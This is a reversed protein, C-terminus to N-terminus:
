YSLGLGFSGVVKTDEGGNIAATTDGLKQFEVGGHLNWAGFSTTSGLPITALGAASFYGFRNDVGNLEYYDGASLGVKVPFALSVAAGAWGPAVGLEVYKGAKNGADAQGMGPATDMEFAVLAYPKLAGKGLRASDDVGLKFAIEKVTSFMNNPSTYATYTTGLSVGGGFGLGLTAYFDGEYWLKGSPGDTGAAGTHLSNWSGVNLGMSKLGADGSYVALGLDAAPWMILKTDDQRIGRFMYTNLFDFSGTFTLNGPNPDPPAPQQASAPAALCTVLVVAVVSSFGYCSLRRSLM